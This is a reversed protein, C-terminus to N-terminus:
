KKKKAPNPLPGREGSPNPRARTTRDVYFIGDFHDRLVTNVMYMDQKHYRDVFAAGIFKMPHGASLWGQVSAHSPASRFDLVYAGLGPRSLFWGVSGEPSPGISFEILAGYDDAETDFHRAQFNGQNFVFGLAYYGEGLLTKMYSGLAPFDAGWHSNSIHGNHAWVAVKAEPYKNLFYELNEAMYLDRLAAANKKPDTGRMPKSYADYFQALVRAHQFVFDFEERSSSRVLPVEHFSLVGLMKLLGSWIKEREEEEAQPLGAIEFPDIRLPSLANKVTDLYLPIHKGVYAELREMGEELHQLDYGLFQVKRRDPAKENHARMWAIMDRVEHTDWTWFKQSALAEAPDGTGHLVYDNINNCAAYSAEIAFITFGMEKVLFELMRHKFQFFERSGHTAEGLAVVRVDKLIKKMPKMDRFGLGATVGKLPIASKSIWGNVAKVTESDPEETAPAQQPVAAAASFVLVLFLAFCKVPLRFDGKM